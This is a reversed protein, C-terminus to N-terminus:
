RDDFFDVANKWDVADDVFDCTEVNLFDLVRVNKPFFVLLSLLEPKPVDPLVDQKPVTVFALTAVAFRLILNKIDVVDLTSFRAAVYWVIQNREALGAMRSVMLSGYFQWLVDLTAHREAVGCEHADHPPREM